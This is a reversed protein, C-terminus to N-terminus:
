MSNVTFYIKCMYKHKKCNLSLSDHQYIENILYLLM